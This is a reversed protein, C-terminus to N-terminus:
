RLCCGGTGTLATLAQRVVGTVISLVHKGLFVISQGHGVVGAVASSVQRGVSAQRRGCTYKRDDYLINIHM